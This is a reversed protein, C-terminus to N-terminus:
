SAPPASSTSRSATSAAALAAPTNRSPRSAPPHFQVERRGFGGAVQECALGHLRNSRAGRVTLEGANAPPFHRAEADLGGEIGRRERHEAEDLADLGIGGDRAQGVLGGVMDNGGRRIGGHQDVAPAEAQPDALAHTGARRMDPQDLEGPRLDPRGAGAPRLGKRFGEVLHEAQVAHFQVIIGVQGDLRLHDAHRGQRAALRAVLRTEAGGIAERRFLGDQQDQRAAPHALDAPDRRVQHLGRLQDLLGPGFHLQDGHRGVAHGIREPFGKRALQAIDGNGIGGRRM